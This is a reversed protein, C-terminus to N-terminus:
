VGLFLGLTIRDTRRFYSEINKPTNKTKLIIWCSDIKRIDLKGNILM